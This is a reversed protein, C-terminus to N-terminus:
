SDMTNREKPHRRMQKKKGVRGGKRGAWNRGTEERFRELIHNAEYGWHADAIALVRSADASCLALKEDEAPHRATRQTGRTTGKM